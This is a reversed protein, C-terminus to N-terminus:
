NSIGLAEICPALGPLDDLQAGAFVVHGGRARIESITAWYAGPCREKCVLEPCECGGYCFQEMPPCAMLCANYESTCKLECAQQSEPVVLFRPEPQHAACGALIIACLAAASRPVVHSRGRYTRKLNKRAKHIQKSEYTPCITIKLTMLAALM